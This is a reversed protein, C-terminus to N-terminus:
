NVFVPSIYLRPEYQDSFVYLLSQLLPVTLTHGKNCAAIHVAHPTCVTHNLTRYCHLCLQLNKPEKAYNHFAVTVTTMDTEGCPVVRRGSSPNEYFKIGSYKEFIQRSFELKTFIQCSYRTAHLRICM